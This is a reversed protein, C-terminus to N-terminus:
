QDASSFPLVLSVQTGAVEPFEDNSFLGSLNHLAINDVETERSVPNNAFDRHLRLRGTRIYVFGKRESTIQLVRDLGLGRGQQGSTTGWKKLCRTVAESEESVTPSTNGNKHLDWSALGPGGDFISIELLGLRKYNKDSSHYDIFPKILPIDSAVDKIRSKAGPYEHRIDFVAGRLYEQPVMDPSHRAWRHTNDFLEYILSGLDDSFGDVWTGFTLGATRSISSLVASCLGALDSPNRLTPHAPNGSYFWNPTGHELHRDSALLLAKPGKSPIESFLPKEASFLEAQFPTGGTPAFHQLAEKILSKVELAIPKNKGSFVEISQALLLPIVTEPAKPLFLVENETKVNLRVKGEASNRMWTTILQVYAATSLISRLQLDNSIQLFPDPSSFIESFLEEIKEIHLKKPIRM